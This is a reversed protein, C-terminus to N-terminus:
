KVIVRFSKVGDIRVVYVGIVGVSFEQTESAEKVESILRGNVDIVAVNKGEAGYVFIHCNNSYIIYECNTIDEISSSIPSFYATKVLNSTVTVHIISSTQGDDWHDFKYGEASFAQLTAIDGDQYTGGGTVTGMSPNNAVATVTYVPSSIPSFYATMVTNSTVTVYIISSTQGNSWHDFRYGEAPIAQLTAIDGDCYTGGGTVTGMSSNNAVASLTYYSVGSTLYYMTNVQPTGNMSGGTGTFMGTVADTGASSAPIFWQKGPSTTNLIISTCNRFMEYYCNTPLSTAPLSPISTISTCLNFMSQYCYNALSTAPLSPASMLSTCGNFMNEYCNNKMINAPLSPPTTLSTCGNFMGAYCSEALTTAPLSPASILSTCNGFMNGYCNKALTTAHLSPPTTLSTCSAFMAGYCGEALTTAPLSPPTTLSTCSAFIGAYCGKALTTAPLSPPVRLSTCRYFMYYYCRDALTTAPLSPATTLYTCDYFMWYYCNDAITTAPLSPATTLLQCGYFMNAFAYSDLPLNPCSPGYLSMINGSGEVTGGNASTFFFRSSSQVPPEGFNNAVSQNSAARFYISQNANITVETADPYVNWNTGDTSYQITHMGYKLDFKVTVSGNKAKFRLPSNSQASITAPILLALM